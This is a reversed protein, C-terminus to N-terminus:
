HEQWLSFIESKEGAFFKQDLNLIAQHESLAVNVRGQDDWAAVDGADIEVIDHILAMKLAKLQDLKVNFETEIEPTLLWVMMAVSWSHEASSEKRGDNTQNNRLVMKLQNQYKFYEILQFIKDSNMLSY